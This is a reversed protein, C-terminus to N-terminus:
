SVTVIALNWPFGLVKGMRQRLISLTSLVRPLPPCCLVLIRTLGLSRVCTTVCSTSRVSVLYVFLEISEIGTCKVALFDKVEGLDHVTFDEALKTKVWLVQLLSKSVILFDDVYILLYIPSAGKNRSIYVGSDSQCPHFGLKKLSANLTKHWARPSQKLGYLAKNLRYVVGDDGNHFGPPQSVYVEEEFDGNLFATKIDLQHVELNERAAKCLITRRDGFSSTPAFVEDVDVRPIQRCGQTVLRAKYRLVNGEADVKASFNWHVSVVKM